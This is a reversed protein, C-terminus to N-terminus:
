KSERVRNLLEVVLSHVETNPNNGGSAALERKLREANALANELGREVQQFIRRSAKNYDTLHALLHDIVAAASTYPRSSYEFHLLLWFEFSPRSSILEIQIRDGTATKLPKGALHRAEALPQGDDDLVVFVRDYDKTKFLKIAKNVLSRADTEGTGPKIDVGALNIRRAECLGRLYNPETEEGECVILLFPLGQRSAKARELKRERKQAQRNRPHNDRM